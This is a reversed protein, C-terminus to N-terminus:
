HAIKTKNHRRITLPALRDRGESLVRRAVTWAKIRPSQLVHPDIANRPPSILEVEGAKRLIIPQSQRRCLGAFLIENGQKCVLPEPGADDAIWAREVVIEQMSANIPLLIRRALMRVLLTGSSGRTLYNSRSLSTVDSWVVDGLGNITQAVHALLELGEACDQHHGHPIIPQNLFAALRFTGEHGRAMVQRPVIPLGGAVFEAVPHGFSPPWRKEKNWSTLSARSLCVAEYNLNLMAEGVRELFAGYPPAMVRAVPIGCRQEFREIRRIAQALLRMYDETALPSGMELYSHDNGHMLLSLYAPNEQFIRAAGPHIFWADLPVMAFSVHYNLEKAHQLVKAFDIFGYSGWHLNPDDFMICARLPRPNWDISRTLQKLFHFFPLLRLWFRRNFYSYITTNEQMEEPGFAVVSLSTEGIRRFLWYPNSELSCAVVDAPEISLPRFERIGEEIMTQGRFCVDISDVMGFEVVGNKVPITAGEANAVMLCDLARASVMAIEERTPEWLIVGDCQTHEDPLWAVFEVSYLDRMTEFLRRHVQFANEPGIAIRKREAYVRSDIQKLQVSNAYM